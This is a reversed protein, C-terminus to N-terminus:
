FQKPPKPNLPRVTLENILMNDPTKLVHIVTEAVDNPQLMNHHKDVGSSKFFDTDISGPNICTVKIDDFRLEKFLAESFGSVGFKTSCYAAGESRAVRGLISGINIIHQHGIKAKMLAVIASTIFYMGNLNVNVMRLWYSSDMEDIKKFGGVGANNILIDPCFELDFTDEVWNRVREEDTLDIRVAHFEAGLEEELEALADFNRAIGYVQSGAKVLATAVARGLGSSVGTVVAIKNDLQM